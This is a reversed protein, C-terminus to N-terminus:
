KLKYFAKNEFRMDIYDIHDMQTSLKQDMLLGLDRLTNQPNTKLNLFIFWGPDTFIKVENFRFPAVTNSIEQIEITNGELAHGRLYHDAALLYNMISPDALYDGLKLSQLTHPSSSSVTILPLPSSSFQPAEGFILGDTNLYYCQQIPQCVISFPIREPFSISITHPFSRAVNAIGINNQKLIDGIIQPSLLFINNQPLFFGTHSSLYNTLANEVAQRDVEGQVTITTARFYPIWFFGWLAFLLIIGLLVIRRAYYAIRKRRQVRYRHGLDM